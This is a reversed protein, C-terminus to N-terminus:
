RLPRPVPRIGLNVVTGAPTIVTGDSVIFTGNTQPGATYTPFPVSQALASVSLGAALLLALPRLLNMRSHNQSVKRSM